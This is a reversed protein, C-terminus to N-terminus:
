NAKLIKFLAVKSIIQKTLLACGATICWMRANTSAGGTPHKSLSFARGARSNVICARREIVNTPCRSRRRLRIEIFGSAIKRDDLQDCSTVGVGDTVIDADRLATHTVAHLSEDLSIREPYSPALVANGIVERQTQNDM